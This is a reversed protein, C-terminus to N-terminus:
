CSFLCSFLERYKKEDQIWLTHYKSDYDEIIHDPLPEGTQKDYIMYDADYNAVILTLLSKTLPKPKKAFAKTITDIINKM